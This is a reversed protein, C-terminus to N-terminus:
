RFRFSWKCITRDDSASYLEQGSSAWRIDNVSNLHGNYRGADLTGVLQFDTLEWIRITKDRSATALLDGQPRVQIQNVTYWHAALDRLEKVNEGLQWVKMHADRGGSILTNQDLWQVAFVSPVHAQDIKHLIIWRSTDLLYIHGDSAGVALTKLDPGLALSRLRAHTLSISEELETTQVNWIGLKGNGGASLLRDGFEVLDFFERKISSRRAHVQKKIM